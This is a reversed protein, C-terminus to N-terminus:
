QLYITSYQVQETSYGESVINAWQNSCREMRKQRFWVYVAKDLQVNDGLHTVKAKHNMGMDVMEKKLALIESITSKAVGYKSAIVTMSSMELMKIIHLKDEIALVVRKRKGCAM